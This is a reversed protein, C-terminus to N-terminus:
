NRWPNLRTLHILQGTECDQLNRVQQQCEGLHRLAANLSEILYDTDKLIVDKRATLAQGATDPLQRYLQVKAAQLHYLTLTVYDQLM